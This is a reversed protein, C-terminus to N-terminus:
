RSPGKPPRSTPRRGFLRPWLLRLLIVALGAWAMPGFDSGQLPTGRFTGPGGAQGIAAVILAPGVLIMCAVDLWRPPRGSDEPLPCVRPRHSLEAEISAAIRAIQHSQWLYIFCPGLFIAVLIFIGASPLMQGLTMGCLLISPFLAACVWNARRVISKARDQFGSGLERWHWMDLAVYGSGDALRYAVRGGPLETARRQFGSAHLRRSFNDNLM